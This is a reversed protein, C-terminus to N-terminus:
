RELLPAAELDAHRKPPRISVVFGASQNRALHRELPTDEGFVAFDYYSGLAVVSGDPAWAVGPFDDFAGDGGIGWGCEVQGDAAYTALFSDHGGAVDMPSPAVVGDLGVGLPSAAGFTYSTVTRGKSMAAAVPALHDSGLATVGLLSGTLTLDVAFPQNLNTEEQLTSGDAGVFTISGARFTHVVGRIGWETLALSRVETSSAQLGGTWRVSADATSLAAVFGIAAASGPEPAEVAIRSGLADAQGGLYLTDGAVALAAPRGEVSVVWRLTADPNWAALWGTAATQPAESSWSLVGTGAAYIAGDEGLAIAEGRTPTTYVDPVGGRAGALYRGTADDFRAIFWQSGPDGSIEDDGVRLLESRSYGWLAVERGTSALEVGSNSYEGWVGTSWRIRGAWDWAVLAVNGEATSWELPPEGPAAEFTTTGSMTVVAVVGASTGTLSNASPDGSGTAYIEAFWGLDGCDLGVLETALSGHARVGPKPPQEADGCGALALVATIPVFARLRAGRTGVRYGAHTM